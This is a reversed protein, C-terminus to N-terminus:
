YYRSCCLTCEDTAYRLDFSYRSREDSWARGHTLGDARCPNRIETPFDVTNLIELSYPLNKVYFHLRVKIAHVYCSLTHRLNDIANVADKSQGIVNSFMQLAKFWYPRFVPCRALWEFEKVTCRAMTGLICEMLVDPPSDTINEGFLFEAFRLPSSTADPLAFKQVYYQTM